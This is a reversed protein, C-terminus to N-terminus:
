GQTAFWKPPLEPPVYSALYPFVDEPGPVIAYLNQHETKAFNHDITHQFFVLLPDYFGNLNIFVIPKTHYGLQKLNIVQVMEDLTGFGGPLGVFADARDEMMKKREHMSDTVVLEDAECYGLGRGNISEPIIGVVKGGHEKTSKAVAGMLGVRCGGYVLSHGGQGILRGLTEAASFYEPAVADSSSMYVCVTQPKM